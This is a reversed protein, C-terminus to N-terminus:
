AATEKGLEINIKQDARDLHGRVTALAVGLYVAIQRQSLGGQRLQYATLQRDTLHRTVLERFDAPLDRWPINHYPRDTM